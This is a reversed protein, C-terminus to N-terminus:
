RLLPPLEVGAVDVLPRVPVVVLTGVGVHQAPAVRDTGRPVDDRGVVLPVPVPSDRGQQGLHQRLDIRLERRRREVDLRLLGPEGLGSGAAGGRAREPLPRGSGSRGRSPGTSPAPCFSPIPATSSSATVTSIGTLHVPRPLLRRSRGDSCRRRRARAIAWSVTAATAAVGPTAVTITMVSSSWSARSRRRDPRTRVTRVVTSPRFSDITWATVARGASP